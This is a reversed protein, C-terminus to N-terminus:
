QIPRLAPRNVPVSTPRYEGYFVAPIDEAGYYRKQGIRREEYYRPSYDKSLIIAVWMRATPDARFLAAARHRGEHGVVKGTDMEVKLYPPVVNDGRPDTASRNYTELPEVGAGDLFGRLAGEGDTTLKLFDVPWMPVFGVAKSGRAQRVHERTVVLSREGLPAFGANPRETSPNRRM